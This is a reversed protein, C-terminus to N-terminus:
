NTGTAADMAPHFNLIGTTYSNLDHTNQSTACADEGAPEPPTGGGSCRRGGPNTFTISAGLRHVFECALVGASRSGLAFSGSCNGTTKNM